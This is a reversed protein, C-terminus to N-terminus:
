VATSDFHQADHLDFDYTSVQNQNENQKQAVPAAFDM